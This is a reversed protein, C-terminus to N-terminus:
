SSVSRRASTRRDAMDTGRSSRSGKDGYASYVKQLDAPLLAEQSKLVDLFAPSEEGFVEMLKHYSLLWPSVNLLQAVEYVKVLPVYGAAMWTFVLQRAIGLSNAIGSSGGCTLLLCKSLKKSAKIVNTPVEYAM